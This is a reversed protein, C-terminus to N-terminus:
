LALRKGCVGRRPGYRRGKEVLEANRGSRPLVLTDPQGQGVPIVQFDNGTKATECKGNSGTNIEGGNVADDGAPTTVLNVGANICVVNAQGKGVALPATPLGRAYAPPIVYRTPSEVLMFRRRDVRDCELCRRVPPAGCLRVPQRAGHGETARRTDAGSRLGSRV